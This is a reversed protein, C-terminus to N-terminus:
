KVKSGNDFNEVLRCINEEIKTTKIISCFAAYFESISEETKRERDDATNDMSPYQLQLSKAEINIFTDVYEFPVAFGYGLDGAGAFILASVEGDENYVASGSSGPQILTTVALAEFTKVIPVSGIFMCFMATDPNTFDKENCPKYGMMVTIVRKDTFMGESITTPMLKPHGVTKAYTYRGPAKVALSAEIGLDEAVKIVCLDHIKSVRYNIVLHEVRDDTIVYGGNKVVGCVHGNTVVFSESPSRAMIVGSGGSNKALNTIMVTQRIPDNQTPSCAGLALLALLLLKKM